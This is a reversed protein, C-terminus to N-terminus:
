KKAKMIFTMAKIAKTDKVIVTPPMLMTAKLARTIPMEKMAKMAPAAATSSVEHLTGQWKETVWGDALVVQQLVWRRCPGDHVAPRYRTDSVVKAITREQTVKMVQIARKKAKALLAKMAKLAKLAHRGAM